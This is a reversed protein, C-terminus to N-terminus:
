VPTRHFHAMKWETAERVFVRTENCTSWRPSGADNFTMLRTYTVIATNDYIQVAPHLIDCRTPRLAPSQALQRILSLHFEVGDIRHHCVDEFCTLEPVCLNAYTEVNGTNIAELMQETVEILEQQTESMGYLEFLAKEM